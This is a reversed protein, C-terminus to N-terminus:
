PPGVDNKWKEANLDNENRVYTVFRENEAGPRCFGGMTSGDDLCQCLGTKKNLASGPACNCTFFGRVQTSNCVPVTLALVIFTVIIVFIVCGMVVNRIHTTRTQSQWSATPMTNQM